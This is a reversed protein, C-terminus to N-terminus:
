SGMRDGADSKRLAALLKRGIREGVEDADEVKGVSIQGIHVVVDGYGGGASNVSIPAVRVREPGREGAGFLTPKDVTMDVGRAHWGGWAPLSSFARGGRGGYAMYRQYMGNTYAEWASLGQSSLIQKAAMANGRATTLQAESYQPHASQLVQWLGTAGISNIVDVDGGSEAMAIAAMLRPNPMGVAAALRQIEQQSMTGGAQGAPGMGGGAGGRARLARNVRQRYGEAIMQGARNSAVGPIGRARSGRARLQGPRIQEVAAAMGGGAVGGGLSAAGGAEMAVHLHDYHDPVQWLLEVVGPDGKLMNYLRTLAAEEGGPMSDANVDIAMGRYHYSNESHVPAVGGFAPHEGVAYGMRQLARGLQVINSVNGLQGGGRARGGRAYMRGGYAADLAGPSNMVRSLAMRDRNSLGYPRPPAHHPKTEGKVERDLSTGFNRLMADVRSETHRNVWLEGGGALGGPVPVHDQHGMMHSGVTRGGGAFRGGYANRRGGGRGGPGRTSPDEVSESPRLGSGTPGSEADLEGVRGREGGASIDNAIARADGRSYGMNRLVEFAQEQLVRLHHTTEGQALKAERVMKSHIDEWTSASTDRIRGGILAFDREGKSMRRAIRRQAAEVEDAMKPHTKKFSDLMEANMRGVQRGADGRLRNMENVVNKRLAEVAKQPGSTDLMGEFVRSTDGFSAQVQAGARAERAARLEPGLMRRIREDIGEQGTIDAPDTGEPLYPLIAESPARRAFQLREIGAGGGPLNELMEAVAQSTADMAMPRSTPAAPLGEWGFPNTFSSFGAQARGGLGGDYTLAQLGAIAASIPLIRGAAGRVFGGAGRAAAGATAGGPALGFQAAASAGRGYGFSRALSYTSQGYGRAAGTRWGTYRGWLGGAGGAAGGVAAGEIFGPGGGAPAAMGPTGRMGYGGSIRGRAGQVAGRAGAGAGFLFPLGGPSLLGTDGLFGLTQGLQDLIPSLVEGMDELFGIVRELGRAMDRVSEATDRFFGRVQRPNREVWRDWTELQETLDTVMSRGESRGAGLIDGTLEVASGGLRLWARLDQVMGGIDRRTRGINDTSDRWGETWSDAWEVADHFFPRAAVTINMVTGLVNEAIREMDDVDRAVEGSANRVFRQATNGGLFGGFDRSAGPLQANIRNAGRAYFPAAQRLQGLGVTGARLLDEQGPQTMNRWERGLLTREQLLARTGEPAQRLSRNYADQAERAERSARGHELVTERFEKLADNAAGVAPAMGVATTGIAGAGAAGFGMGALGVAGAGIGGYVASGALATAGGVLARGAPLGLGLLAPGAARGLNFPGLNMSRIIGDRGGGGFGGGGGAGSLGGTVSPVIHPSAVRRDLAAIRRHLLEVQGLAGTIDVNIRPTVNTRGLANLRRQLGDIAQGQVNISRLVTRETSTWERRLSAQVSTNTRELRRLDREYDRIQQQQRPSGIEDLAEGTARATADTRELERRLRQSASEAGRTNLDFGGRVEGAM